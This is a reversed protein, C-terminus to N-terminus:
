KGAARLYELAKEVFMEDGLGTILGVGEIAPIGFNDPIPSVNVILDFKRGMCETEVGTPLTEITKVNYGHEGLLEKTKNAVMSSTVIGSGCVCLVWIETKEKTMQPRKQDKEEKEKSKRGFFM